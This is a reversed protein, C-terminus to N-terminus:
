GMRLKMREIRIKDVLIKKAKSNTTDDGTTKYEKELKVKVEEM